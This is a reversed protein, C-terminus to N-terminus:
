RGSKGVALGSGADGFFSLTTTAPGSTSLMIIETRFGGGDAIQPFIIPSPAPLNFDAIPFTTLLADGRANTLSRLTLAIFPSTAAIDLVGTFGPSLAPNFQGAFAATHGNGSLNIASPSGMATAGNTQFTSLTVMLPSGGPNAIAIGTDHGNSKDVYLRAHTTPTASPIGSETVLVGAQRFSFIGAGVPTSTGGSPVVQASGTNVTLPSGDTQLVLFGGPAISYPFSFNTAGGVQTVNLPSGNDTYFIIAGTEVANSTNVLVVVTRYGGGDAVQPYYLPSTQPSRTLDAVPTTTFLTDGRTNVTSRLCIISLPRDSTIELTGFQISTSFGPPLTLGAELDTLQDIFKARHAGAPIIGTGANGILNGAGDRLKYTVNATAAGPNVVAIGTDILLTGVDQQDTKGAVNSRYDIFLRAAKTPPSAPVGAESVTFGNDVFSFVATSYPPNGNDVTVKAYGAQVPSSVPNGDTSLTNAGSAAVSLNDTSSIAASTDAQLTYSMLVSNYPEFISLLYSLTFTDVIHKIGSQVNSSTSVNTLYPLMFPSYFGYRPPGASGSPQTTSADKCEMIQQAPAGDGPGLCEWVKLGSTDLKQNWQGQCCYLSQNQSGNANSVDFVVLANSWPGAPSNAWRAIVKQDFKPNGFPTSMMLWLGSGGVTDFFRVSIQGADAMTDDPFSLPSANNIEAASPPSSSWGPTQPSGNPLSSTWIQFGPTRALYCPPSSCQGISGIGTLPMRALYVNSARYKGTGFLYLYGDGGDVPTVWVFHGGLPPTPATSQWGPPPAPPCLTPFNAPCLTTDTNELNYDVRSIIQYSTPSVNNTTGVPSPNKWVALYSVSTIPFGLTSDSNVQVGPSGAYFLYITESPNPGPTQYLFAGTTAENIGPIGSNAPIVPVTANNKNPTPNFIYNGIPDNLPATMIDPSFVEGGSKSTMGPVTVIKFHNCLSAPNGYDPGNLYGIVNAGGQNSGFVGFWADADAAKADGAFFWTVQNLPDDVSIGQDSGDFDYNTALYDTSPGAPEPNPKTVPCVLSSPTVVALTTQAPAIRSLCVGALCGWVASAAFVWRGSKRLRM